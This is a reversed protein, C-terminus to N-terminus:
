INNLFDDVSLTSELLIRVDTGVDTPLYDRGNDFRGDKVDDPVTVRKAAKLLPSEQHVPHVNDEFNDEPIGEVPDPKSYGDSDRYVEGDVRIQFSKTFADQKIMGAIKDWLPSGPQTAMSKKLAPLELIVEGNPNFQFKGSMVGYIMLVMRIAAEFMTSMRERFEWKFEKPILEALAEEIEKGPLKPCIFVLHGNGIVPELQNKICLDRFKPNDFWSNDM